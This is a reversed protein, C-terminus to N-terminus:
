ITLLHQFWNQSDQNAGDKQKRYEKPFCVVM